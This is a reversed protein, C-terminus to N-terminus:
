YVLQVSKNMLSVQLESVRESYLGKKAEPTNSSPPTSEIHDIADM